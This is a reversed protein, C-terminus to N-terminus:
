YETNQIIIKYGTNKTRIGRNRKNKYIQKWFVFISIIDMYDIRRDLNFLIFLSLYEELYKTAIGKFTGIWKMLNMM